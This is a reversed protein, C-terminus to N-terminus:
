HHSTVREKHRRLQTAISDVLADISTYMNGSEEKGNFSTGFARLSLEAIQRNKEVLLTLNAATDHHIYKKICHGIKETAYAKLSDTSDINRFTVNVTVNHSNNEM